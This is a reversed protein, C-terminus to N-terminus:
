VKLILLRAVMLFVPRSPLSTLPYENLDVGSGNVVYLRKEKKVIKLKLILSLDDKNQFIIKHSSKLAFWYLKSILYRISIKKISNIETFPTGLGTVLPFYIIKPFFILIIGTYIIPKPTYSIIIDPKLNKIIRYISYISKFDKFFNYSKSSLFFKNIEVGLDKLEKQLDNSFNEIPAAVSVKYGKSLMDKILHLRFNILSPGYSSIILIHKM